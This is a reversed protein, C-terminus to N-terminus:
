NLLPLQVGCVGARPPQLTPSSCADQQVLAELQLPSLAPLLDVAHVAIPQLRDMSAKPTECPCAPDHAHGDTGAHGDMGQSTLDEAGTAHCNGGTLALELACARLPLAQILVAVLSFTLLVRRVVRCM